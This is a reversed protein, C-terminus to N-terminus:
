LSEVGDLPIEIDPPDRPQLSMNIPVCAGLLAGMFLLLWVLKRSSSARYKSFRHLLLACELRVDSRTSNLLSNAVNGVDELKWEVLTEPVVPMPEPNLTHFKAQIIPPLRHIVLLIEASQFESLEM